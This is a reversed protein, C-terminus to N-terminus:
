YQEAFIAPEFNKAVENITGQTIKIVTEMDMSGDDIKHTPLNSTFDHIDYNGPNPYSMSSVYWYADTHIHDGDADIGITHNQISGGPKTPDAIWHALDISAVQHPDPTEGTKKIQIFVSTTSLTTTSPWGHSVLFYKGDDSVSAADMQLVETVLRVAVPQVINAISAKDTDTYGTEDGSCATLAFSLGLLAAIAVVIKQV